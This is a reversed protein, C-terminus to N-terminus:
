NGRGMERLDMKISGKWKRMARGLPKRGEPTGVFIRFAGRSEGIRAVHEARRLRKKIRIINPSSYLAYLKKNVDILLVTM